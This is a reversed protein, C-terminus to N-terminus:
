LHDAVELVEIRDLTYDLEIPMVHGEILADYQVRLTCADVWTIKPSYKSYTIRLSEEAVKAGRVYGVVEMGLSLAMIRM